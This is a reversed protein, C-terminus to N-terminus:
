IVDVLIGEPSTNEFIYVGPILCFFRRTGIPNPDVGIGTAFADSPVSFGGVLKHKKLGESSNTLSNGIGEAGQLLQALPNVIGHAMSYHEFLFLKKRKRHKSFSFKVVQTFVPISQSSSYLFM